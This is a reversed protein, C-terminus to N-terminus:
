DRQGVAHDLIKVASLLRDRRLLATSFPMLSVTFLFALHMWTLHRESRAFHGLQAQQGVRFIGLALFSMLYIVLRPALDSLAAV